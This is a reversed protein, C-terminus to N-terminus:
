RLGRATQFLDSMERVAGEADIEFVPEIQGHTAAAADAGVYQSGRLWMAYASVASAFTFKLTPVDRVMSQDYRNVLLQSEDSDSKKYRIRVEMIDSGTVAALGTSESEDSSEDPKLVPATGPLPEPVSEGSSAPIVEYLATVSM